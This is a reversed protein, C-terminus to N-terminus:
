PRPAPASGENVALCRELYVAICDRLQRARHRFGAVSRGTWRHELALPIEVVRGGARLTDITMALEMGFGTAFPLANSLAQASLARQGSLPAAVRAGTASRVAWRAFGLTVGFGGGRSSDFAGIALDASGRAIADTLAVLCVASAGLDGDCLLYRAEVGGLALARACAMGATEGKGRRPAAVVEIARSAAIEATKDRSGDDALVITATPFVAALADLTAAIREAEDRATVM